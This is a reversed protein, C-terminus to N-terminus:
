DEQSIIMMSKITSIPRMLDDLLSLLQRHDLEMNFKFSRFDLDFTVECLLSILILNKVIKYSIEIRNGVNICNM